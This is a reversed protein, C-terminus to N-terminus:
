EDDDWNEKGDPAFGAITDPSIPEKLPTITVILTKLDIQVIAGARKAARIIRELEAQRFAARSM